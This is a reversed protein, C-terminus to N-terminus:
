RGRALQGYLAEAAGGAVDKVSSSTVQDDRWYTATWVPAGGEAEFLRTEIVLRGERATVDGRLIFDTTRAAGTPVLRVELGPMHMLRTALSAAFEDARWAQPAPARTRFPEIALTVVSTDLPRQGPRDPERILVAALSAGLALVAGAGAAIRGTRTV